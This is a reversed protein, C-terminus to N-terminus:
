AGMTIGSTDAITDVIADDASCDAAENDNEVATCLLKNADDFRDAEVFDNEVENITDDDAKLLDNDLDADSHVDNERKIDVNPDTPDMDDEAVGFVDGDTDCDKEEEVLEVENHVDNECDIEVIPDTPDMDDEAVVLVELLEDDDELDADVHVDNEFGIDMPDPLADNLMEVDTRLAMAEVNNEVDNEELKDKLVKVNGTEAAGNLMLTKNTECLTDTVADSNGDKEVVLEPDLDNEAIVVDVNTDSDKDVADM